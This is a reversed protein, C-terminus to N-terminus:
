WVGPIEAVEGEAELWKGEGFKGEGLNKFVRIKGQSFQGVLLDKKGDNDVDAWCPAAYGPPEVRIAQGRCELRVPAAFDAADCPSVGHFLLLTALCVPIALGECVTSSLGIRICLRQTYTAM